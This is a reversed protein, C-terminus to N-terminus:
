IQSDDKNEKLFRKVLFLDKDAVTLHEKSDNKEYLIVTDKGKKARFFEYVNNSTPLITYGEREMWVAFDMLKNKNLLGRIAM